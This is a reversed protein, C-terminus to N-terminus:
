VKNMMTKLLSRNQANTLQEREPIEFAINFDRFIEAYSINKGEKISYRIQAITFALLFNKYTQDQGVRKIDARTIAKTIDM